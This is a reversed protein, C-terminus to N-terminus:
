ELWIWMANKFKSRKWNWGGEGIEFNSWTEGQLIYGKVTSLFNKAFQM